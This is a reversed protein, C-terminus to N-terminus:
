TEMPQHSKNVFLFAAPQPEWGTPRCQPCLAAHPSLATWKMAAVFILLLCWLEWARQPGEVLDWREFTGSGALLVLSCVVGTDGPGESIEGFIGSAVVASEKTRM